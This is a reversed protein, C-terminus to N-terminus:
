IPLTPDPLTALDDMNMPIRSLMDAPSFSFVGTGNNYDLQGGGIADPLNTVAFSDYTLGGGLGGIIEWIDPQTFVVLEGGNANLPSLISWSDHIPGAETNIFLDGDEYATVDSPADSTLDIPGKYHLAEKANPTKAVWASSADSWVLYQNDTPATVQTDVLSNLVLSDIKLDLATEANTARDVEDNLADSLDSIEGALDTALDNIAETNAQVKGDELDTVLKDVYAKHAAETDHTPDAAPLNLPGVMTDGSVLVYREDTTGPQSGPKSLDPLGLDDKLLNRLDSVPTKFSEQKRGVVLFDTLSTNSTM